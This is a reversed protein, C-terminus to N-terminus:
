RYSQCRVVDAVSCICGGCIGASTEDFNRFDILFIVNVANGTFKSAYM